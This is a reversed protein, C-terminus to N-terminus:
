VYLVFCRAIKCYVMTGASECMRRYQNMSSLSVTYVDYGGNGYIRIQVTNV